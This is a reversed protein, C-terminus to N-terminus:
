QIKAFMRPEPAGNKELKVEWTTLVPVARGEINVSESRAFQLLDGADSVFMRYTGENAANGYPRWDGMIVHVTRGNHETTGKYSVTAWQDRLARLDETRGIAIDLPTSRDGLTQAGAAYVDRISLKLVVESKGTGPIPREIVQSEVLRKSITSTRLDPADYAFHKGNAVIMWERRDGIQKQQRIYVKDPTDFQVTTVISGGQEGAKQTMTITGTLTRADHYYALMKSILASPNVNQTPASQGTLGMSVAALVTLM